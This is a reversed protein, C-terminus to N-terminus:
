VKRWFNKHLEDCVIRDCNYRYIVGRKHTITDKEKPSGPPKQNKITIGGKFHVQIGRKSSINKFTESLGQVVMYINNGKNNKIKMNIDTAGVSNKTYGQFKM